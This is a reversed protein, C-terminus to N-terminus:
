NKQDHKKQNEGEPERPFPTGTIWLEAQSTRPRALCQEWWSVFETNGLGENRLLLENVVRTWTSPQYYEKKTLLCILAM